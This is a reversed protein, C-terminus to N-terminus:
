DHRKESKHGGKWVEVREPEIDGWYLIEDSEPLFTTMEGTLGDIRVTLIVLGPRYWARPNESMYIAIHPRGSGDRRLGSKLISEM